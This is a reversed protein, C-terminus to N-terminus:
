RQSPRKILLRDLYAIFFGPTPTAYEEIPVVTQDPFLTKAEMYTGFLLDPIPLGFFGSISENCRVNAHHRLHFTYVRKWFKGFRPSLFLVNWRSLPWHLAVHFLEYLIISFWLSSYGAIFIPLTPLLLYIGIYIPTLLLSFVALTWWPFFSSEHQPEEIIPFKNSTIEQQREVNTLNHHHNHADYFHSFFPIVKAHLVYRHFFYEIFANCFHAGVFTVILLTWSASMQSAFIAPFILKLIAFIIALTALNTILFWVLSFHKVHQEYSM